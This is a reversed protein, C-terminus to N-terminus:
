YEIENNKVIKLAENLGKCTGSSYALTMLKEMVETFSNIDVNISDAHSKKIICDVYTKIEKKLDLPLDLIEM